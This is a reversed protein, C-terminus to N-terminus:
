KLRKLLKFHKKAPLGMLKTEICGLQELRKIAKDQQLRSLTTNIKLEASTYVFWEQSKDARQTLEAMLLACDLGYARAFDKNIQWHADQSFMQKLLNM